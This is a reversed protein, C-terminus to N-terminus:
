DALRYVRMRADRLAPGAQVVDAAELRRLAYRVTRSPLRTEEALGTGTLAGEHALVTAVLKASAPLEVLTSRHAEVGAQGRPEEHEPGATRDGAEGSPPREETSNTAADTTAM